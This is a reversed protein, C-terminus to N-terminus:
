TSQNVGFISLVHSQPPCQPLATLLSHGPGKCLQALPRCAPSPFLCNAQSLSLEARLEVWEGFGTQSCLKSLHGLREGRRQLIPTIITGGELPKQSCILYINLARFLAKACYQECCLFGLFGFTWRSILPHAITYGHVPIIDLWLFFFSYLVPARQLVVFRSVNHQIFYALGFFPAPGM